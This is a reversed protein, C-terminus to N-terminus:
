QTPQHEHDHPVGFEHAAAHHALAMEDWEEEDFAFRAGSFLELEEEEIHAALAFYARQDFAHPDTAARELRDHVERHESELRDITEQDLDGTRLLLPYLGIEEKVAHLDLFRNLEERAAQRSPEDPWEGEAVQWALGLIYEHDATLEAIPAFSRCGCHDCM